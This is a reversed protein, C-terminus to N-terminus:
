CEYREGNWMSVDLWVTGDNCIGEDIAIGEGDGVYLRLQAQQDNVSLFCKGDNISGHLEDLCVARFKPDNFAQSELYPFIILGLVAVIALSVIAIKISINLETGGKHPLTTFDNL